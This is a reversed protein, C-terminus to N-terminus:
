LSAFSVRTGLVFKSGMERRWIEGPAFGKENAINATGWVIVFHIMAWRAILFPVSIICLIDSAGLKHDHPKTQRLVRLMIRLTIILLTLPMCTHIAILTNKRDVM